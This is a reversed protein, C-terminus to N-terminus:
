HRRPEARQKDESREARQENDERNQHVRKAVPEIRRMAEVRKRDREHAKARQRAQQQREVARPEADVDAPDDVRIVENAEHEPREDKDDRRAAEGNGGGVGLGRAPTAVTAASQQTGHAQHARQHADRERRQRRGERQVRGTGREDGREHGLAPEGRRGEGRKEMGVAATHWAGDKVPRDRRPQEAAGDRQSHVARGAGDRERSQEHGCRAGARTDLLERLYRARGASPSAGGGAASVPM